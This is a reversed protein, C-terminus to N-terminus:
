RWRQGVVQGCSIRQGFVNGCVTGTSAFRGTGSETGWVPISELRPIAMSVGVGLLFTRRSHHQKM